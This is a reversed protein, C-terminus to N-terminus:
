IIYKRRGTFGPRRKKHTTQTNTKPYIKMLQGLASRKPQSPHMDWGLAPRHPMAIGIHEYMRDTIRQQPRQTQPIDPQM